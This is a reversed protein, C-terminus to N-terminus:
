QRAGALAVVVAGALVAHDIVGVDDHEAAGAVVHHRHKLASPGLIV